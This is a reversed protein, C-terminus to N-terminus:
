LLEQGMSRVLVLGVAAGAEYIQSVADGAGYFQGVDPVAAGSTYIQGVDSGCCSRGWLDSGCKGCLLEQGMSRVWIQGM